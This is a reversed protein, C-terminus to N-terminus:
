DRRITVEEIRNGEVRTVAIQLGNYTIMEGAQPIRGLRSLVFGAITEYDEDEPLDLELEENADHISM